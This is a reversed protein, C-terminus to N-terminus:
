FQVTLSPPGLIGANRYGIAKASSESLPNQFCFDASIRPEALNHAFSRVSNAFDAPPTVTLTNPYLKEGSAMAM